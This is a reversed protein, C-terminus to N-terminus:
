ASFCGKFEEIQCVVSAPLTHNFHKSRDTFEGNDLAIAFDM